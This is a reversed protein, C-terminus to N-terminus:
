VEQNKNFNSGKIWKGSPYRVLYQGVQLSGVLQACQAFTHSSEQSLRKALLRANEEDPRFHVRLYAQELAAVAEKNSIWQSAFWGALGYKRGECLIRKMMSGNGWPLTQAEDLLLIIPPSMSRATTRQTWIASLIMSLLLNRLQVDVLDGFDLVTIGPISLNLSSPETGCILLSDTLELLELASELGRGGAKSAKAYEILGHLTPTGEEDRLYTLVAQRLAMSARNGLRFASHVLNLFQQALLEQPQGEPGWLPNLTFDVSSVSIKQFSVNGPPEYSRYDGTYDFVLCLAGQSSAQALLRKCFCSKGCGSRGTVFVHPNDMKSVSIPSGSVTSGLNLTLSM